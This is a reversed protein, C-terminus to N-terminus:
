IANLVENRETVTSGYQVNAMLKVEEMLLHEEDLSQCVFNTSEGRCDPIHWGIHTFGGNETIRRRKPGEEMTESEALELELEDDLHPDCFDNGKM